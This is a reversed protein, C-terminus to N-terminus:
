NQWMGGHIPHQLMWGKNSAQWCLKQVLRSWVASTKNISKGNQTEKHRWQYTLFVLEWGLLVHVMLVKRVVMKLYRGLLTSCTVRWTKILFVPQLLRVLCVSKFPSHFIHGSGGVVLEVLNLGSSMIRFNQTMMICHKNLMFCNKDFCIQGWNTRMIM